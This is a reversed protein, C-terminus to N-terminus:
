VVVRYAGHAHPYGMRASDKDGCKAVQVKMCFTESVM